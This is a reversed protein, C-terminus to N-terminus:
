ARGYMDSIRVIDAEECDGLQTEIVVLPEDGHNHLRHSIGVPIQIVTYPKGSTVEMSRNGLTVIGKGKVIIMIETRKSHYQLSTMQGPKVTLKKTKHQPGVDLDEWSGWPTTVNDLKM